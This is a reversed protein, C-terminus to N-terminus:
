LKVRSLSNLITMATVAAVFQPPSIVAFASSGTRQLDRVDLGM